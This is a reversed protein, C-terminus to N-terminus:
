SARAQAAPQNLLLPAVHEAIFVRHVCGFHGGLNFSRVLRPGYATQRVNPSRFGLMGASPTHWGDLTGFITTGVGVFLCDLWSHFSWIGRNVKTEVASLDFWPSVAAALLVLGELRHGDPLARATLLALGGGGSHGIIWVPRGPYNAQYEVIRDALQKAIRQNRRWGRLHYLTLFKNGTTWDFVEMAYPVGADILGHLMALNLFSRGEIGPLILVLGQELQDNQDSRFFRDPLFWGFPAVCFTGLCFLARQWRPRCKPPSSAELETSELTLSM